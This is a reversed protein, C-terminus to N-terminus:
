SRSFKNEAGISYCFSGCLDNFLYHNFFSTDILIINKKIVIAHILITHLNAVENPSLIIPHDNFNLPLM